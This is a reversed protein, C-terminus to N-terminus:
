SRSSESSAPARSSSSWAFPLTALYSLVYLTRSLLDFSAGILTAVSSAVRPVVLSTVVWLSLVAVLAARSSRAVASVGIALLLYSALFVSYALTLSMLRDVPASAGALAVMSAGGVAVAPLLLLGVSATLGLLKGVFLTRPRTGISLLLRLTGRERENTWTAFGLVLVLLPVLLQLVAAASLRGLPASASADGAPAGESATRAHAVLRISSGMFPEVGPDIFRLLGAPKFVTTGYHAAEHPNKEDQTVFHEDASAQAVQSERSLTAQQQLGFAMAVLLLAAVAIAGVWMRGDRLVERLEKQVISRLIQLPAVM